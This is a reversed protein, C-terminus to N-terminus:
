ITCLRLIKSQYLSKIKVEFLPNKDYATKIRNEKNKFSLNFM